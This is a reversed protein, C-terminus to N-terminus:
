QGAGPSLAHVQVWTSANPRAWVGYGAGFDVVLDPAYGLGNM